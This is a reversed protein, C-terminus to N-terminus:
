SQEWYVVASISGLIGIPIVRGANHVEESQHIVSDFAGITWIAPLWAASIQTWGIPWDSLNEFEGFVYSAPKFKGRFWCAYCSYVRHYYFM